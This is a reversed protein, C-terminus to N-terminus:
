AKVAAKLENIQKQQEQVVKLLLPIFETYRLGYTYEGTDKGDEDVVPSKIWGAFDMDTLGVSDMAEKVQQAVLGYHTRVGNIFKHSVPNIAMAFSMTQEVNLSAIDTKDNADSANITGTAAYINKWRAIPSGLEVFNDKSPAFISVTSSAGLILSIHGDDPINADYVRLHIHKNDADTVLAGVNVGNKQFGVLQFEANNSAVLTSAYLPGIM